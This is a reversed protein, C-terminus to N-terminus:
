FFVYIAMPYKKKEKRILPLKWNEPKKGEEILNIEANGEKKIADQSL